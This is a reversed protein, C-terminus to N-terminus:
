GGSARVLTKLDPVELDPSGSAAKVAGVGARPSARNVWVTSLGLSKAPIVDHHISQGVHLWHEPAVGIREQALRFMALAPKYARAQQATIVHDFPVELQPATAAFLDDDVNSLIALRYRKKLKRLSEVTDPFPRWRALSEPLSRVEADTPSFGLRLGVGRVVSQLVERYPRFEGQEARSELEGYLELLESDGLQEGHAALVPRLASFIGTEWDILTGYCDFTLIQFRSFDM